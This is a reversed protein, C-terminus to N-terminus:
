HFGVTRRWPESFAKGALNKSFLHHLIRISCKLLDDRLTNPGISKWILLLVCTRKHVLGEMNDRLTYSTFYVSSKLAGYRLCCPNNGSYKLNDM